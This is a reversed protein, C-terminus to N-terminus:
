LEIGKLIFQIAKKSTAYDQHIAKLVTAMPTSVPYDTQQGPSEPPEKPSLVSSLRKVLEETLQRMEISTERLKNLERSVEGEQVPKNLSGALGGGGGISGTLQPPYQDNM